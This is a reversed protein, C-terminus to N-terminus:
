INKLFNDRAELAEALTGFTKDFGRVRIQVRYSNCKNQVHIYQHGSKNGKFAQNFGNESYNVWRLNDAKNNLKNRDIHDVILYEEPKPNKVFAFAVLRHVKQRTRYGDNDYLYITLYGNTDVPKMLQRKGTRNYNLSVINGLNSVEYPFGDIARWEEM